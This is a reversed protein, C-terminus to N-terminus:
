ETVRWKKNLGSAAGSRGVAFMGAYIAIAGLASFIGLLKMPAIGQSQPVGRSKRPRRANGDRVPAPPAGRGIFIPV